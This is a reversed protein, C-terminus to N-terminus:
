YESVEDQPLKLRRIHELEKQSCPSCDEIEERRWETVDCVDQITPAEELDWYFVVAQDDISVVKWWTPQQLQLERVLEDLLPQLEQLIQYMTKRAM